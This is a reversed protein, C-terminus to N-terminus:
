CYGVTVDEDKLDIPKPDKPHIMLTLQYDQIEELCVKVEQIGEFPDTNELNRPCM